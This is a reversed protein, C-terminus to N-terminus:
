LPKWDFREVWMGATPDNGTAKAAFQKFYWDDGDLAVKLNVTDNTHLAVVQAPYTHEELAPNYTVPGPREARLAKITDVDAHELTYLVFDGITVSM